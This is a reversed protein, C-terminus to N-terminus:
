KRQPQPIWFSVWRTRGSPSLLSGDTPPPSISLYYVNRGNERTGIWLRPCVWCPVSVNLINWSGFLFILFREWSGDWAWLGTPYDSTYSHPFCVDTSMIIILMILSSTWICLLLNQVSILLLKSFLNFLSMLLKLFCTTFFNMKETSTTTILTTFVMNGHIVSRLFISPKVIFIPWGRPGWPLQSADALPNCMPRQQTYGVFCVCLSPWTLVLGHFVKDGSFALALTMPNPAWNMIFISQLYITTKIQKTQNKAM